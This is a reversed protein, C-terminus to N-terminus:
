FMDAKDMRMIIMSIEARSATVTPALTTPNKGSIVGNQIAWVVADKAFASIKGADAFPKLTEATNEVAASGMYRYLITCVQERTIPDGVGFKGNNYGNIIHNDVAWAVASYYYKGQVLDSLAPEANEYQSLDAGSIRALILVFDQRQLKDAPGFKRNGYGSVFNKETCYDVCEFFWQTDNM